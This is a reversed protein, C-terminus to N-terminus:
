QLRAGEARRRTYNSNRLESPWDGGEACSVVSGGDRAGFSTSHLKNHMVFLHRGFSKLDGGEYEKGEKEDLL